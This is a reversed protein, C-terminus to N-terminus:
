CFGDDVDGLGRSLDRSPARVPISRLPPTGTHSHFMTFLLRM